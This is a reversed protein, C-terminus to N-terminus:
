CAGTLRRKCFVLFGAAGLIALMVTSPEPIISFSLQINDGVVSFPNGSVEWGEPLTSEDLVWRSAFVGLNGVGGTTTFLAMDYEGNGLLGVGLDDLRIVFTTALPDGALTIAGGTLSIQSYEVGGLGDSDLAFNFIGGAKADLGANLTMTGVSMSDTDLDLMGPTVESNAGSLILKKNVLTATGGFEANNEVIVSSANIYSLDAKIFLSGETVTVSNRFTHDTSGDLVLIGTGKKEVSYTENGAGGFVGSFTTDAAQDVILGNGGTARTITGGNGSLSAITSVGGALSVAGSNMVVKATDTASNVLQLIGGNITVTGEYDEGSIRLVSSAAGITFDGSIKINAGFEVYRGSSGVGGTTAAGTNMTITKLSAAQITLGQNSAFSGSFAFGGVAIDETLNIFYSGPSGAIGLLGAVNGDVWPTAVNSGSAVANNPYWLSTTSDWVYTQGGVPINGGAVPRFYQTAAWVNGQSLAVGVLITILLKHM